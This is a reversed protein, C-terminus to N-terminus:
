CCPSPKSCASSLTSALELPCPLDRSARAENPPAALGQGEAEEGRAGASHNDRWRISSRMGRAGQSGAQPLPKRGRSPAEAEISVSEGMSGGLRDGVGCSELPGGSAMGEWHTRKTKLCSPIGAWPTWVQAAEINKLGGLTNLPGAKKWSLPVGGCRVRDEQSSHSLSLVAVHARLQGSSLLDWTRTGQMLLSCDRFEQRPCHASCPSAPEAVLPSWPTATTPERLKCGSLGRARGLYSCTSRLAPRPSPSTIIEDYGWFWSCFTVWYLSLLFFLIICM